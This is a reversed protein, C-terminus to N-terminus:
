LDDHHQDRAGRAGNGRSQRLPEEARAQRGADVDDWSQRRQKPPAAPDVPAPFDQQHHLGGRGRKLPQSTGDLPQMRILRRFNDRKGHRSAVRGVKSPNARGGAM